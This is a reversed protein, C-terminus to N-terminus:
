KPAVESGWVSMLLILGIAPAWTWDHHVGSWAMILGASFGLGVRSLRDKYNPASM